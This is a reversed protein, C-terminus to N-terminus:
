SRGKIKDTCPGPEKRRAAALQSNGVEEATGGDRFREEREIGFGTRWRSCIGGGLTPGSDRRDKTEGGKPVSSPQHELHELVRHRQRSGGSQPPRCFGDQQRSCGKGSQDFLPRA